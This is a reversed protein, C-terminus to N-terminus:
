GDVEVWAAADGPLVGGEVPESAVLVRAGAPLDVPAAGLNVWSQVRSGERAVALVDPSPTRVWRMPGAQAIHERRLALVRRYLSLTSAPDAAQAQATLAGWGAPQPLYPDLAPSGDPRREPSFGFPPADGSWPLPVRSGDRGPDTGGSRTFIPDTRCDDPVDEVEQLGLEEGLYVYLVGPLAATLM